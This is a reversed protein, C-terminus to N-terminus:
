SPTASYLRWQDPVGKLTHTGHDALEINSGTVLDKVTRSVLVDDADALDCIRSAIVVGIGAIDNGRLEIEGTHVGARIQLDQPRLAAAIARACAIGRSPGEFTALVGDGTTKILRGGLREIEGAAIRDHQDLLTRWANDGLKRALETSGVIDTFLVTALVRDISPAPARGATLFDVVGDRWGAIDSPRWSGHFDGPLELFRADPIHDAIYRGSAVPVVPDGTVHVVLTPVTVASLASRVDIDLNRRM